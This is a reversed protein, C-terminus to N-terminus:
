LLYPLLSFTIVGGKANSSSASGGLKSFALTGEAGVTRALPSHLVPPLDTDRVLYNKLLSRMNASKRKETERRLGCCLSYNFNCWSKVQAALDVSELANRLYNKLKDSGTTSHNWPCRFKSCRGYMEMAPCAAPQDPFTLVEVFETQPGNAPAHNAVPLSLSDPLNASILLPIFKKRTGYTILWKRLIWGSVLGALATGFVQFYSISSAIPYKMVVFNLRM